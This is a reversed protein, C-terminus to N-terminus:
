LEIDEVIRASHYSWNTANKYADGSGVPVHITTWTPIANANGLSPPTTSNLYINTLVQCENFVEKDISTVGCPIVISALSTCWKFAADGISIVGSGIIVNTLSSCYSFTREDISTVGNGIVVSALNDCRSFAYSGLTTVNDPIIVNKLKKCYEFAYNRISTVNNGITVSVLNDCHSFANLEISTINDGMVVSELQKYHMYFTKYKISTLGKLDSETIHQISGDIYSSIKNDGIIIKDIKIPLEAFNKACINKKFQSLLSSLNIFIHHIKDNLVSM